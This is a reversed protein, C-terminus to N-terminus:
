IPSPAIRVPSAAEGTTSGFPPAPGRAPPMGPPPSPGGGRACVSKIISRTNLGPFVLVLCRASLEDITECCSPGITSGGPNLLANAIEVTCGQVRRISSWCQGINQLLQATVAPAFSVVFAAILLTAITRSAM